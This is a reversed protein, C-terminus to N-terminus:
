LTIQKIKLNNTNLNYLNFYNAQPTEKYKNTNFKIQLQCLIM